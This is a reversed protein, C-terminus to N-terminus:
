RAPFSYGAFYLDFGGLGGPRNSSFMLFYNTFDYHIGPLPRYEDASTNIRPGLNVPTNWKGKRMISYYLDYGGYGGPRNSTFLMINKMIMPCKDDFPSNISDVAAPAAYNMDFWSQLDKGDPKGIVYIDFNGTSNNIFYASDLNGDFCLYADDYVTNMLKLPFAGEIDPITGSYPPRNKLYRLDLNGSSNVSSLIMYEYGDVASYIRNPGFDNGTTVSKEILKDLFGDDTIKAGLGFAGTTKDFIFSMVGQELDFQGGSSKRNTSFVLLSYGDLQTSTLNYDDYPSNLDLLNVVTDPFTGKDFLIVPENGGCGAMFLASAAVVPFLVTKISVYIRSNM